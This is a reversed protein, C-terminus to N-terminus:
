RAKVFLQCYKVGQPGPEYALVLARGLLAHVGVITHKPKRVDDRYHAALLLLLDQHLRQTGVEAGEGLLDGVILERLCSDVFYRNLQDLAQSNQM